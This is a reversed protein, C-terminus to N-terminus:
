GILICSDTINLSHSMMRNPTHLIENYDAQKPFVVGYIGRPCTEPTEKNSKTCLLINYVCLKVM